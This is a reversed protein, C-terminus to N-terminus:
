PRGGGVVGFGEKAGERSKTLLARYLHLEFGKHAQLQEKVHPARAKCHQKYLKTVLQEVERGVLPM